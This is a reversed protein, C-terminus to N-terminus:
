SRERVYEELIERVEHPSGFGGAKTVLCLGPCRGDLALSAAIGPRVEEISRLAKVRLSDCVAEATRGGSVFVGGLEADRMVARLLSNLFRPFATRVRVDFEEPALAAVDRGM